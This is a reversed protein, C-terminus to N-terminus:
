ARGEMIVKVNVMETEQIEWAKATKFVAGMVSNATCTHQLKMGYCTFQVTYINM